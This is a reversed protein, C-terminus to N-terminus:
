YPNSPAPHQAGSTFEGSSDLGAINKAGMEFAMVSPAEFELSLLAPDPDRQPDDRPQTQKSNSAQM